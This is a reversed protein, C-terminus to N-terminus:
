EVLEKRIYWYGDTHKGNTPYELNEGSVTELYVGLRNTTSPIAEYTYRYTEYWKFIGDYTSTLKTLRNTGSCNYLIEPNSVTATILDGIPWFTNTNPEYYYDAYGSYKYNADKIGSSSGRSFERLDYQETTYKMFYYLKPTFSVEKSIKFEGCMVTVVATGVTTSTLNFSISGGTDTIGNVQSLTGMTTSITVNSGPFKPIHATFVISKSIMESDKDVSLIAKPEEIEQNAGHGKLPNKKDVLINGTESTYIAAHVNDAYAEYIFQNKAYVSVDLEEIFDKTIEFYNGDEVKQVVGNANFLSENLLSDLLLTRDVVELNDPFTGGNILYTELATEIVKATHIYKTEKARETYGTFKPAALLVLIGIVAMVVILEILTFAHKLKLNKHMTKNKEKM